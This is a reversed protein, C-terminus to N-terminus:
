PKVGIAAQSIREFSKEMCSTLLKPDIFGKEVGMALKLKGMYSVVGLTLSQPGGVLTFHFSRVPHGAIIMQEIPGVVNTVATSTNRLTAHVYKAVAEPGKLRRIMELFKGTLVVALSNKRKEIIKKAKLLFQLPDAIMPDKCSPIGVHIFAFHNGWPSKTDPKTMESLPQYSYSGIDRTNLLVLATVNAAKARAEESAAENYLRIGLFVIGCIVDNITGRIKTKIKHIDDLSFEISSLTIPLFEVGPTGSRVPSKDDELLNSKLVSWGFDRVTNVCMSLSSSVKSIMRVMGNKTPKTKPKSGSPFTLPLSPDDARQLCNFLASMLSYGDGLSHHIRFVLTGEAKSTPFKILHLDWLPRSQPMQNTAIKSIYDQVYEDYTDLGSPFTPVLVHEELNVKVRRWHQVGQADRVQWSPPSGLTLLFFCIRWLRCLRHTM